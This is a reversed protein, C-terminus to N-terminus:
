LLGLSLSMSTPRRLWQAPPFAVNTAIVFRGSAKSPTLHKTQGCGADILQPMFIKASCAPMPSYM